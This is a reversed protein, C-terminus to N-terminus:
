RWCAEGGCVAVLLSEGQLKTSFLMWHPLKMLLKFIGSPQRKFTFKGIVRTVGPRVPTGYIAAV